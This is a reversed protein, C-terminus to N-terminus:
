SLALPRCFTQGFARIVFKLQDETYYGFLAAQSWNRAKLYGSESSILIGQEEMARALAGSTMGDLQITFVSSNHSSLTCCSYRNLIEYFINAYARTM